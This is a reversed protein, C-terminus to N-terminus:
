AGPRAGADALDRRLAERLDPSRSRWSGYGGVKRVADVVCTVFRISM